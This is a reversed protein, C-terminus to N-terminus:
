RGSTGRVKPHVLLTSQAAYLRCSDVATTFDMSVEGDGVSRGELDDQMVAVFSLGMLLCVAFTTYFILKSVLLLCGDGSSAKTSLAGLMRLHRSM